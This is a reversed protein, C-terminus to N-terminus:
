IDRSIGLRQRQWSQCSATGSRIESPPSQTAITSHASQALELMMAEHDHGETSGVIFINPIGATDGRIEGNNAGAVGRFCAGVTEKLAKLSANTTRETSFSQRGDKWKSSKPEVRGFRM